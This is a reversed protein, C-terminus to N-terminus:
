ARKGRATKGVAIVVRVSDLEDLLRLVSPTVPSLILQHFVFLQFREWYDM